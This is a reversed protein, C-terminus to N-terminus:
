WATMAREIVAARQQEEILHEWLRVRWAPQRDWPLGGPANGTLKLWRVERAISEALREGVGRRLMRPPEDDM